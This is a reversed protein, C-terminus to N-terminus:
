LVEQITKTIEDQMLTLLQPTAVELGRGTFNQAKPNSRGRGEDPFMLYGYNNKGKTGGRSMVTFGLNQTVAKSWKSEKAHNKHVNSVPILSTIERTVLEIGKTHLVRNVVEEAKGPIELLRKELLKIDEYDVEFKANAM